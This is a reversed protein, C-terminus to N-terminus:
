LPYTGILLDAAVEGPSVFDLEGRRQTLQADRVPIQGGDLLDMFPGDGHTQLALVPSDGEIRMLHTVEIMPIRHGRMAGLANGCLAHEHIHVGPCMRLENVRAEGVDGDGAGRLISLEVGVVGGNQPLAEAM